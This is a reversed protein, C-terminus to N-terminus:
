GNFFDVNSGSCWPVRGVVNVYLDVWAVFIDGGLFVSVFVEKGM